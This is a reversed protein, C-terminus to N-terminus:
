KKVALDGSICQFLVSVNDYRLTNEHYSVRLLTVGPVCAACGYVACAATLATFRKTHRPYECGNGGPAACVM